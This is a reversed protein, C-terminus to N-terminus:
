ADPRWKLTKILHIADERIFESVPRISDQNPTAYFYMSCRIFHRTSDTLFFQLSSAANGAVDYLLGYVGNDTMLLHEEIGDAKVVHKTTLKHTEEILVHLQQDENIPKYSLYIKGKFDPFDVNMWCPNESPRDNYLSDKTVMAYSPIEFTFPCGVPDYAQYEKHPLDIRFYGKPRPTYDAQCAILVVTLAVILWSNRNM